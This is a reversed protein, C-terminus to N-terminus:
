SNEQQLAMKLNDAEEMFRARAEDNCERWMQALIKTTEPLKLKNGSEDVIQSRHSACFLMYASPSRKKGGTKSSKPSVKGNKKTLSPPGKSKNASAGVLEEM